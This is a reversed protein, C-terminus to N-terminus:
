RWCGRHGRAERACRPMAARSPRMTSGRCFGRCRDMWSLLPACRLVAARVMFFDLFQPRDVRGDGDGDARKFAERSKTWDWNGDPHIPAVIQFFEHEDLDNSSDIDVTDFAAARLTLM